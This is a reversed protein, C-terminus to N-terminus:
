HPASDISRCRYITRNAFLFSEAWTLQVSAGFGVFFIFQFACYCLFAWLLILCANMMWCGLVLVLASSRAGGSVRTSTSPLLLCISSPSWRPPWIRHVGFEPRSSKADTGGGDGNGSALSLIDDNRELSLTNSGSAFSLINGSSALSLTGGTSAPPSPFILSCHTLPSLTFPYSHSAWSLKTKVSVQTKILWCSYYM